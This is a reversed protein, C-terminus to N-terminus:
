AHFVGGRRLRRRKMEGVYLDINVKASSSPKLTCGLIVTPNVLMQSNSFSIICPLFSGLPANFGAVANEWATQISGSKIKDGSTELDAVSLGSIHWTSHFRINGVGSKRGQANKQVVLCDELPAPATAVQGINLLQGSTAGSAVYSATAILPEFPDEVDDLFRGFLGDGATPLMTIRSNLQTFLPVGILPAFLLGLAQKAALSSAADTYSAPTAAYYDFKLTLPKLTTADHMKMVLQLVSGKTGNTQFSRM